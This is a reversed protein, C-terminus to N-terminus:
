DARPLIQPRYGPAGWHHRRHATRVPEPWYHRALAALATKLVLKASRAPWQREFEVTELGKLFCCVDVLVSSLEPGVAELAADVRRRAALAAETLEVAGSPRGAKRGAVPAIWNVGFRPMIMGRDYDHRLREGAEFERRHLYAGGGKARRRMLGALPSERDNFGASKGDTADRDANM